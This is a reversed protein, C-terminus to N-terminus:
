LFLHSLALLLKIFAISVTFAFLLWGLLHALGFLNMTVGHYNDKKTLHVDVWDKSTKGEARSDMHRKTVFPESTVWRIDSVKSDKNREQTLGLDEEVKALITITELFRQYLRTTGRKALSAIGVILIPGVVLPVFHYWNKAYYIGAVTGVILTSLLGVYFAIRKQHETLFYEEQEIVLRYLTFLDEKEMTRLLLWYDFQDIFSAFL